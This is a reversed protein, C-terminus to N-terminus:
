EKGEAKAIVAEIEALARICERAGNPQKVDKCEEIQVSVLGRALKAIALLEPAAAILMAMPHQPTISELIGDADRAVIGRPSSVLVVDRPGHDGYLGWTGGFNRWAWPGAIIQKSM